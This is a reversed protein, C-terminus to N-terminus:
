TGSRVRRRGAPPELAAVDTRFALRMVEIAGCALAAGVTDAVADLPDCSRGPVFAQHAEDSVAYVLCWVVAVVLRWPRTMGRLIPVTLRAVLFGLIGYEGAHAFKDIGAIGPLPVSSRASLLFIVLSWGAAMGWRSALRDRRNM